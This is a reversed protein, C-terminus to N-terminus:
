EEAVTKAGALQIEGKSRFASSHEELNYTCKREHPHRHEPPRRGKGDVLRGVLVHGKCGLRRGIIALGRKINGLVRVPHLRVGGSLFGEFVEPAAPIAFAVCCPNELGRPFDCVESAPKPTRERRALPSCNELHVRAPRGM